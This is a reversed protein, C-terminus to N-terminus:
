HFHVVGNDQGVEFARRFLCYVRYFWGDATDDLAKAQEAYQAFDNALKACVTPGIYGECDSFYILEAFASTDDNSLSDPNTGVLQALKDRWMNYGSYGGARFSFVECGYDYYGELVLDAAQRPFCDGPIDRMWFADGMPWGESDLELTAPNLKKIQRYASIDLGM